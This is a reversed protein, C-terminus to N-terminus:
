WLTVSPVSFCSSISDISRDASEEEAKEAKM